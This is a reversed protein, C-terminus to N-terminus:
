LLCEQAVALPPTVFASSQEAQPEALEILCLRFFSLPQKLFLVLHIRM